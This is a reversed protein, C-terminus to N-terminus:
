LLQARRTCPLLQCDVAFDGAGLTEENAGMSMFAQVPGGELTELGVSALTTPVPHSCSPRNSALEPPTQTLASRHTLQTELKMAYSLRPLDDRIPM